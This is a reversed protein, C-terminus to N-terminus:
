SGVRRGIIILGATVGDLTGYPPNTAGILRM